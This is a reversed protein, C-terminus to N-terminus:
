RLVRCDADYVRYPDRGPVCYDVYWSYGAFGRESIVYYVTAKKGGPLMARASCHREDLVATHPLPPRFEMAKDISAITFGDHWTKAEVAMQRNLIHGIVAPSDCSPLSSGALAPGSLLGLALLVLSIRM